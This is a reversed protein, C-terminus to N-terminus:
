LLQTHNKVNDLDGSPNINGPASGGVMQSPLVGPISPGSPKHRKTTRGQFIQFSEGRLVRTTANECFTEGLDRLIKCVLEYYVATMDQAEDLIILDYKKRPRFKFAGPMKFGFQGGLSPTTQRSLQRKLRQLRESPPQPPAPTTPCNQSGMKVSQMNNQPFALAGMNSTNQAGMFFQAGMNSTNQSFGNAHWHVQPTNSTISVNWSCGKFYLLEFETKLYVSLIHRAGFNSDVM